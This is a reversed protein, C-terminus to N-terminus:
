RTPRLYKTLIAARAKREKMESSAGRVANLYQTADKNDKDADLLKSFEQIRVTLGSVDIARDEDYISALVGFLSYFDAYGKFRTDRLPMNDNITSLTSKIRDFKAKYADLEPVEEDYQAYFDDLKDQDASMIGHMVLLFLEAIFEVDKMRRARARTSIGVDAWFSDDAEGDIQKSFAGDFLAHRLEQRTLRKSNRNLRDFVANVLAGEIDDLMEVTLIYNWFVQKKEPSLISFVRGNLENEGFDDSINLQDKSFKIITDLRQKGDVVNYTPVGRESLSKHLFIPATPFNRFISDLFFQRDRKTWVSKRQYPPDLILQNKSDLDLFWSIDQTTPRRKM